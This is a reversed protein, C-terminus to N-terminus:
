LVPTGRRSRLRTAIGMSSHVSGEVSQERIMDIRGNPSNVVGVRRNFEDWHNSLMRRGFDDREVSQRWANSNNEGIRYGSNNDNSKMDRLLRIIDKNQEHISKLLNLSLQQSDVYMVTVGVYIAIMVAGFVKRILWLNDFLVIQLDEVFYDQGLYRQLLSEVALNMIALLFLIFRCNESRKATTAVIIVVMLVSYYMIQEFFTYEGVIWNHFQALRQFLDGLQRGQEITSNRFQETLRHLSGQSESLVSSLNVGHAVLERQVKLGERQQQLLNIQLQGAIELQKSVSQSQTQLQNITSETQSHWIQHMLYYCINTTHTYFHTYTQFVRESMNAMCEIDDCANLDEDVNNSNTNSGGSMEIFCKTFRLALAAQTKENLDSCTKDIRRIAETWCKGYQPVNANSQMLRYQKEGEAMQIANRDFQFPNPDFAIVSYVNLLAIFVIIENM